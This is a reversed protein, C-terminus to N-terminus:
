SAKDIKKGGRNNNSVSTQNEWDGVYLSGVWFEERKGWVLSERKPDNDPSQDQNDPLMFGDPNLIILGLAVAM